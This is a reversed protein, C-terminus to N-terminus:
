TSLRTEVIDANRRYSYKGRINANFFEGKAFASKMAAHTAPPVHVYTYSRRSRFVVTLEQRQSDYEFTRIVTSPM